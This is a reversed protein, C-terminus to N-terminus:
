VRIIPPRWSNPYDEQGLLVAITSAVNSLGLDKAASLSYKGRNKTQDHIIFPVPNSTHATKPEGNEDLLEEANGHDAVIVLCGGLKDVEKALRALNADVAEMATKTAEFDASHGVMDGNPYNLRIFKYKSLNAIAADTIETSKMQPRTEFPVNDSEIEISEEGNAKEYSCGNFYYTVHGFKVTESIALESINKSGLFQNLPEKFEVPPILAHEPIHKTAEYETLGAFYIDDPNFNGRGFATFEKETFAKTIELARDARFDYCIVVDGKEVKGVPQDADNVVVFTPLYQDQIEPERKRVREILDKAEYVYNDALGKVMMNFGREVMAWDNEYRDSVTVMRGGGSAIKIDVSPLNKAFTEIREIYKPESQPPVDRGDFVTHIRIKKAGAECAKTIMQELHNIHSHVGGDSFIGVFHLTANESIKQTIEQWTQSEWIRGTTFFDEIHALGTKVIQGCGMISHGVESNGMQGPTLGVAEGSAKLPCHFDTYAATALFDTKARFVANGASDKALGVGDLIALVVPGDYQLKAM